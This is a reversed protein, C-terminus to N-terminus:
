TTLIQNITELCHIKSRGNQSNKFLKYVKIKKEILHSMDYSGYDQRPLSNIMPLYHKKDNIIYRGDDSEISGVKVKQTQYINILHMKKSYIKM